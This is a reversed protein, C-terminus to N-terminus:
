AEASHIPVLHLGYSFIQTDTCPVALHGLNLRHARTQDLHRMKSCSEYMHAETTHKATTTNTLISSITFIKMKSLTQITFQLWIYAIFWYIHRQAICQWIDWGLTTRTDQWSPADKSLVRINTSKNWTSIYSHKNAHFMYCYKEDQKADTNHIPALGLSHSFIQADTCRAALHGMKLRHTDQWSPADKPLVYMHAETTNKLTITNTMISYVIFVKTNSVAQM